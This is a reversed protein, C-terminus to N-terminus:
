AGAVEQIHKRDDESISPSFTALIIDYTQGCLTYEYDSSVMTEISGDIPIIAECEVYYQVTEGNIVTATSRRNLGTVDAVGFKGSIYRPIFQRTEYGALMNAFALQLNAEGSNHYTYTYVSGFRNGFTLTVEGKYKM